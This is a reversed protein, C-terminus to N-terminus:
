WPYLTNNSHCDYCSTKLIAQVKAPVTYVKTFHVPVVQGNDINSAPQIFQITVMVILLALLGAKMRSM